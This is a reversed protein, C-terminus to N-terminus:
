FTPVPNKAHRVPSLAGPMCCLVSCMTSLEPSERFGPCLVSFVLGQLRAPFYVYSALCLVSSVTCQTYPVSCLVCPLPSQVTSVPCLVRFVPPRAPFYVCSVPFLVSSVSCQVCYVPCIAYLVPCMPSSELCHMSVSYQVYFMLCRASCQVSTM